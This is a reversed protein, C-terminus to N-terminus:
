SKADQQTSLFATRVGARRGRDADEPTVGWDALNQDPETMGWQELVHLRRPASGARTPVAVVGGFRPDGCFWITQIEAKLDSKARPAMRRHWWETRHHKPFVLPLRQGPRAPNAFEFWGYHKRDVDPHDTLGHAPANMLQWPYTRMIRQMRFAPRFYQLQVVLRYLCYCLPLAFLVGFGPPLFVVLLYLLGWWGAAWGSLGLLNMAM